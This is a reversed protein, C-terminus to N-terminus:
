KKREIEAELQKAFEGNTIKEWLYDMGERLHEKPLIREAANLGGFRAATSIKQYMGEVGHEVMMDVILKLENLCEYRAIEKPIGKEILFREGEEVLRPVAGCLVVQESLLDTFTEKEATTKIIGVRDLGLGKAIEEATSWATTTADKSVALVGLVGSGALYNERLKQGIGKPAVLLLDDQPAVQLNGYTLAYGHAFVFQRAEKSSQQFPELFRAAHEDPLLIAIPGTTELLQVYSLVSFGDALAAKIASGEPRAYVKVKWASDRLNKAWAKGQNGYGVVTIERM